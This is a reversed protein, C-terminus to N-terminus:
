PVRLYVAYVFFPAHEPVRADASARYRRAPALAGFLHHENLAPGHDRWEARRAEAGRGCNLLGSTEAGDAVDYGLLRWTGARDVRDWDGFTAEELPRDLVVAFAAEVGDPALPWVARDISLPAAASTDLLFSERRDSTWETAGASRTERFLWAEKPVDPASL